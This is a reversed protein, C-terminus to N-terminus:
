PIQKILKLALEFAEPSVKVIGGFPYNLEYVVLLLSSFILTLSFMVIAHAINSKAGFFYTFGLTVMGGLVLSEWLLPPIGDGSQEIRERRADDLGAAADIAQEYRAVAAPATPQQDQVLGGLQSSIRWAQASSGQHALEPWETNIVIEAYERTLQLIEGHEPQPLSHGYWALQLLADSETYTNARAENLSNWAAVVLLGLLVAYTVGVVAYVFGVIDNHSERRSAPVLRELAFVGGGALLSVGFILGISWVPM